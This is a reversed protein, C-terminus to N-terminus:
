MCTTVDAHSCSETHCETMPGCHFDANVHNETHHETRTDCELVVQNEYVHPAEDCSFDAASASYTGEMGNSFISEKTNRNMFSMQKDETSKKEDQCCLKNIIFCIMALVLFVTVAIVGQLWPELTRNVKQCNVPDWAAFLCLIVFLFTKM